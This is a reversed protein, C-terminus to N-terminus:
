YRPISSGSSGTTLMVNEEAVGCWRVKTSGSPTGVATKKLSVTVGTYNLPFTKDTKLATTDTGSITSTYNYTSSGAWLWELTWSNGVGPAISVNWGFKTLRFGGAGIANQDLSVGTGWLKNGTNVLNYETATGWTDQGGGPILFEGVKDPVFVIGQKVTSAAPAGGRTWKVSVYDGASVGIPDTLYSGTKNTGSITIAKVQDVGNVRLTATRSQGAGPATTCAAYFWDLYGDTAIYTSADFENVTGGQYTGHLPVYYTGAGVNTNGTSGMLITENQETAEFEMTFRLDAATPTGTPIIILNVLDGAAVTAQATVDAVAINNTGSLTVTCASTVGNIRLAIQWSKGAGPTASSYVMLRKFVGATPCPMQHDTETSTEGFEGAGFPPYYRTGTRVPNVAGCFVLQKSM